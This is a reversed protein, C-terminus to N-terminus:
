CRQITDREKWHGCLRQELCFLVLIGVELDDLLHHRAAAGSDVLQEVGEPASGAAGVEVIGVQGGEGTEHAAPPGGAEARGGEHIRVQQEM